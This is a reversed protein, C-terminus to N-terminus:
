YCVQVVTDENQGTLSLRHGPNQGFRLLRNRIATSFHEELYQSVFPGGHGDFISFICLNHHPDNMYHMRDEMYPRQGRNAFFSFNQHKWSWTGEPFIPIDSFGLDIFKPAKFKFRNKLAKHQLKQGQITPRYRAILWKTYFLLSAITIFVFLAETSIILSRVLKYRVTATAILFGFIRTAIKAM